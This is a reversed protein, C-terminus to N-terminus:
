IMRAPKEKAMRIRDHISIFLSLMAALNLFKLYFLQKDCKEEKKKTHKKNTKSIFDVVACVYKKIM